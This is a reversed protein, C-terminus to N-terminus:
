SGPREVVAGCKKCRNNGKYFREFVPQLQTVLNTLHFFEEYIKEGCKPCLWL